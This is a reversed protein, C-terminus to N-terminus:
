VLAGSHGSSTISAQQLSLLHVAEKHVHDSPQLRKHGWRALLHTTSWCREAQSTTFVCTFAHEVSFGVAKAPCRFNYPCLAKWIVCKRSVTILLPRVASSRVACVTAHATSFSAHYHMWEYGDTHTERHTRRYHLKQFGQGLFNMKPICTYRGFGWRQSRSCDQSIGCDDWWRRFSRYHTSHSTLGYEVMWAQWIGSM